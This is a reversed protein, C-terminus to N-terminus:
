QKRRGLLVRRDGLGMKEKARIVAAPSFLKNLVRNVKSSNIIALIGKDGRPAVTTEQLVTFYKEVLRMLVKRSLWSRLQGPMPPKIDSRRDYVFKNQASFVLYGQPKTLAAMREMFHSQDNVNYFTECCVVLDFDAPKWEFKLFDMAIFEARCGREKAIEIARPALDVGVVDGFECLKESLWGTGCGIELIKPQRLPLAAIINLVVLITRYLDNETRELGEYGVARYKSNWDDYYKAQEEVSPDNKM